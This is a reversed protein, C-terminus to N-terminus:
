EEKEGAFFDPAAQLMAKYAAEINDTNIYEGLFENSEIAAYMGATLMPWIDVTSSKEITPVVKWEGAEVAALLRLARRITQADSSSVWGCVLADGDSESEIYKEFANKANTM